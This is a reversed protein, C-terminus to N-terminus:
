AALCRGARSLPGDGCPLQRTKLIAARPAHTLQGGPWRTPDARNYYGVENRRSVKIVHLLLRSPM